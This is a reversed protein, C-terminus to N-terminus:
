INKKQVPPTVVQAVSSVSTERGRLVTRLVPSVIPCPVLVRSLPCATQLPCRHVPPNPVLVSSSFSLFLPCFVSLLFLFCVIAASTDHAAFLPNDTLLWASLRIECCNCMKLVNM